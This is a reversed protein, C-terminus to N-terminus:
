PRVLEIVLAGQPDNGESIQWGAASWAARWAALEEPAAGGLRLTARGPQLDISDLKMSTAGSANGRSANVLSNLTDLTPSPASRSTTALLQRELLPVVNTSSSGPPLLASAQAAIREELTRARSSAMTLDLVIQALFVAFITAAVRLPWRWRQWSESRTQQPAFESHLLNHPRAAALERSLWELPHEMAHLQVSVLRTRLADLAAGHQQLDAASAYVRLGLTGPPTAGLSWDLAEHLADVPWTRRL